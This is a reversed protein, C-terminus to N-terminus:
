LWKDSLSCSNASIETLKTKCYLPKGRSLDRQWQQLRIILIPTLAGKPRRKHNGHYCYFHSRLCNTKKFFFFIRKDLSLNLVLVLPKLLQLSLYLLSGTVFLLIEIM